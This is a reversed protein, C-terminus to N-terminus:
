ISIDSTREKSKDTRRQLNLHEFTISEPQYKAYIHVRQKENEKKTFINFMISTSRNKKCTQNKGSQTHAKYM